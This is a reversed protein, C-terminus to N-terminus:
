RQIRSSTKLKGFYRRTSALQARQREWAGSARRTRSALRWPSSRSWLTRFTECARECSRSDAGRSRRPAAPFRFCFFAGWFTSLPFVAITGRTGRSRSMRYWTRYQDKKNLVIVTLRFVCPSGVVPDPSLGSEEKRDPRSMPAKNNCGICSSRLPRGASYRSNVPSTYSIQLSSHATHISATGSLVSGLQDATIRAPGSIVGFYCGSGRLEKKQAM